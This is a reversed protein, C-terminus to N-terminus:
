VAKLGDIFTTRLGDIFIAKLEGIFVAKFCDLFLEESRSRLGVKILRYFSDM